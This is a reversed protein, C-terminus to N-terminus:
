VWQPGTYIFYIQKFIILITFSYELVYTGLHIILLIIQTIRVITRMKMTIQVVNRGIHRGAKKLYKKDSEPVKESEPVKKESEPVKKDSEPVKKESEAVKKDYDPVKKDYDPAM